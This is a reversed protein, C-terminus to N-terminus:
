QEILWVGSMTQKRDACRDEGDPDFTIVNGYINWRYTSGAYKESCYNDFGFILKNRKNSYNGRAVVMSPIEYNYSGDEEFTIKIQNNRDDMITGIPFETKSCGATFILVAALIILLWKKHIKERRTRITRIYKLRSRRIERKRNVEKKIRMWARSREKQGQKIWSFLLCHRWIRSDGKGASIPVKWPHEGNKAERM